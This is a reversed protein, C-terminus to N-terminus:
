LKGESKAIADSAKKLIDKSIPSKFYGNVEYQHQCHEALEELAHRLESIRSHARGCTQVLRMEFATTEPNLESECAGELEHLIDLGEIFDSM